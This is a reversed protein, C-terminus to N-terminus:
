SYLESVSGSLCKGLRGEPLTVNTRRLIEGIFERIEQDDWDRTDLSRMGELIREAAGHGIIHRRRWDHLLRWLKDSMLVREVPNGVRPGESSAQLMDLADALTGSCLAQQLWSLARDIIEDAFGRALLELRLADESALLDIGCASLGAIYEIAVWWDRNAVSAGNAGAASGSANNGDHSTM